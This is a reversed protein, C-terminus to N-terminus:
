ATVPPFGAATRIHPWLRLLADVARFAERVAEIEPEFPKMANLPPVTARVSASPPTRCIEYAAPLWGDLHSRLADFTFDQFTLDVHGKSAKHELKVRPPLMGSAFRPWPDNASQVDGLGTMKLGPFEEHQLSQYKAWFETAEMSVVFDGERQKDIAQELANRIFLASANNCTALHAEIEEFTVIADWAAGMVRPEAYDRPACLCTVLREWTNLACGEQGRKRYRAAQDPQFRADIKDEVLVTANRGDADKFLLLLDCEGLRDCVGRWAGLFEFEVLGAIRAFFSRISPIAHLGMLLLLDIERESIADIPRRTSIKASMSFTSPRAAWESTRANFERSNAHFM